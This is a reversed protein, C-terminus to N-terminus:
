FKRGAYAKLIGPFAKMWGKLGLNDTNSLKDFIEPHVIRPIFNSCKEMEDKLGPNRDLSRDNAFIFSNQAYWFEVDPNEWVKPRIYDIANYGKQEFKAIWYDQWQENIHYNGGQGPIAASFLVTDSLSTLTDVITAAASDPLHEAVELSIALDFKRDSSFKTKLDHSNFKESPIYLMDKDIYDGDVGLIDKIGLESAASLWTGLGCGIDVMSKPNILNFVMPLIISASLRSGDMQSKYFDKDYTTKAM